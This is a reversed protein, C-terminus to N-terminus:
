EDYPIARVLDAPLNPGSVGYTGVLVKNSKLFEAEAKAEFPFAFSREIQVLVADFTEVQKGQVLLMAEKQLISTSAWVIFGSLGLFLVTFGVIPFRGQWFNDLWEDLFIM